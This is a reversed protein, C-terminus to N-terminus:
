TAGLLVAHGGGERWGTDRWVGAAVAWAPTPSLQSGEEQDQGTRALPQAPGVKDNIM